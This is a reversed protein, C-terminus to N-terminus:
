YERSLAVGRVQWTDEQKAVVYFADQDLEHVCVLAQDGAASFGVASFRLPTAPRGFASELPGPVGLARLELNTFPRQVTPSCYSSLTSPDLSPLERLWAERHACSCSDSTLPTPNITPIEAQRVALVRDVVARLVATRLTPPSSRIPVHTCGTLLGFVAAWCLGKRSLLISLTRLIGAANDM